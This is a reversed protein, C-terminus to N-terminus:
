QNNQLYSLMIKQMKPTAIDFATKGDRDRIEVFNEVHNDYATDLLLTVLSIHSNKAACHLATQNHNDQATLAKSLHNGDVELCIKAYKTKLKCDAILHLLTEYCIKAYNIAFKYNAIHHLFTQNYHGRMDCLLMKERLFNRKLIEVTLFHGAQKELDGYTKEILFMTPQAKDRDKHNPDALAEPSLGKIITVPRNILHSGPQLSFIHKAIDAPLITLFYSYIQPLSIPTKSIEVEMNHLSYTCTLITLTLLLKKM